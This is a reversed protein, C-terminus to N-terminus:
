KTAVDVIVPWVQGAVWMLKPHQMTLYPVAVSAATTAALVILKRAILTKLM